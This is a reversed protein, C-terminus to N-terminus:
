RAKLYIHYDRGVGEDGALNEKQLVDNEAANINNQRAV